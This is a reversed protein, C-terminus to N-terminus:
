QNLVWQVCGQGMWRQLIMWVDAPGHWGGEGDNKGHVLYKRIAHVRTRHMTGYDDLSVRTWM